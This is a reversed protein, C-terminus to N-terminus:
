GKSAGSLLVRDELVRHCRFSCWRGPRPSICGALKLHSKRDSFDSIENKQTNRSHLFSRM